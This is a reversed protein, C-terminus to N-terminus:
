RSYLKNGVEAKFISIYNIMGVLTTLGLLSFLNLDPRAETLDTSIELLNLYISGSFVDKTCLTLLILYKIHSGVDNISLRCQGGIVYCVGSFFSLIKKTNKIITSLCCFLGALMLSFSVLFHVASKRASDSILNYQYFMGTIEM